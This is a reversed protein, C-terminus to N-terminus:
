RIVKRKIKKLVKMVMPKEMNYKRALKKFKMNKFDKFFNERESNEEPHIYAHRCRDTLYKENVEEWILDEKISEFLEAGKESSVIIASIGKNDNEELLKGDYGWFDALSIDGIRPLKAYLCKYCSPRLYINDLFGTQFPNERSITTYKSNDDFYLTVRNPGWGYSKDRWKIAVVKKKFKKEMEAIYTRYVANSPVGHCVVDTTFLKEYKNKGLTKYLAAVQCPTGSFLVYRDTKLDQIVQSYINNVKAQLYKSGRLKELEEEKDVRIFKVDYTGEQTVGYVIGKKELVYNALLSFIGGSSSKQLIKNEKSYAAFFQLKSLNDDKKVENKIPCVKECLGCNVCKEKDIKPYRFGEEDEVMTICHNPCINACAECGCCESKDKIELM